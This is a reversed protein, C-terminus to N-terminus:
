FQVVEHINGFFTQFLVVTLTNGHLTLRIKDKGEYSGEANTHQDGHQQGQRGIIGNGFGRGLELGTEDDALLINGRVGRKLRM